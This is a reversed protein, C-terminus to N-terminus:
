RVLETNKLTTIEFEFSHNAKQSDYLTKGDDSYLKISLKELTIPYFYNQEGYIISEHIKMSGYDNNMYIREIINKGTPNDKCAIKPIEDVVVDVFHNSMDPVFDSTHSTDTSSEVPYFGFLRAANKTKDNTNWVFKFNVSTINCQFKFKHNAPTPITVRTTTIINNTTTAGSVNSDALDATAPFANALNDLTYYGKILTISITESTGSTTSYVISNNMDNITYATNPIIARILRFGIVNKYSGYGGTTNQDNNNTQSYLNYTYDNTNFSSTKQINNTDVLLSRTDIDRTFLRNRNKKYEETKIHNMFHTNEYVVEERQDHTDSDNSYDSDSESDTVIVINDM